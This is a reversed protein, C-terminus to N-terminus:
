RHAYEGIIKCVDKPLFLFKHSGKAHYNIVQFCDFRHRLIMDQSSLSRHYTLNDRVAHIAEIWEQAASASPASLRIIDYSDNSKLSFLTETDLTCRTFRTISSVLENYLLLKGDSLLRHHHHHDTAGLLGQYVIFSFPPAVSHLYFTNDDGGSAIWRGDACVAVKYVQNNHHTLTTICEGTAISWVKVTKDHSGSVIYQEDPTVAVSRVSDIHSSMTKIETMTTTDWLKVTQDASGSVITTANVFAISNVADKHGKIVGVQEGTEANWVIITSDEAGSILRKTKWDYVVTLVWHHHGTFTLICEGTSRKWKKITRDMSSTFVDTGDGDVICRVSDTHGKLVIMMKTTMEVVRGTNDFCALILFRGDRSVKVDCIQARMAFRQEMRTRGDIERVVATDDDGYVVVVGGRGGDFCIGWVTTRTRTAM